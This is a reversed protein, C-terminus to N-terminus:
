KRTMFGVEIDTSDDSHTILFAFEDSSGALQWIQATATEGAGFDRTAKGSTDISWDCAVGSDTCANSSNIILENDVTNETPIKVNFTGVFDADSIPQTKSARRVEIATGFETREPFYMSNASEFVRFTDSFEETGIVQGDADRYEVTETETLEGTADNVAWQSEYVSAVQTGDSEYADNHYDYVTGSAKYVLIVTEEKEENRAVLAKGAFSDTIVPNAQPISTATGVDLLTGANDFDLYIGIRKGQAALLHLEDTSTAAQGREDPVELAGNTITANTMGVDSLFEASMESDITLIDNKTESLTGDSTETVTALLYSQTSDPQTFPKTSYLKLTSNDVGELILYYPSGDTSEVACATFTETVGNDTFQLSGATPINWTSGTKKESFGMDNHFETITEGAAGFSMLNIEKDNAESRIFGYTKYALHESTVPTTGTGCSTVPNEAALTEELHSKAAAETVLDTPAVTNKSAVSLIINKVSELDATAVDTPNQNAAKDRAERTITIGNDPIGDDDLTQLVRAINATKAPDNAALDVPTVLGKANVSGFNITGLKFSVTEGDNYNFEGNSNTIGKYGASTEYEIGDVASDVFRGTESGVSITTSTDDTTPPQEEINATDNSSSSSSGGGCATMGATLSATLIALLLKKKEFM